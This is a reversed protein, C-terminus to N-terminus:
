RNGDVSVRRLGRVAGRAFYALFRAVAVVRQRRLFAEGRISGALRLTGPVSMRLVGTAVGTEFRLTTLDWWLHLPNAPRQHKVGVLELGDGSEPHTRLRYRM